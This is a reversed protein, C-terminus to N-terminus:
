TQTDFEDLRALYQYDLMNYLLYKDIYWQCKGLGKRISVFGHKRLINGM